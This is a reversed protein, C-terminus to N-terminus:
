SCKLVDKRFYHLFESYDELAQEVTLYKLNEPKYATHQNNFPMSNGYYRHEMYVLVANFEKALV